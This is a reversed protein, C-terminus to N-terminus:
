QRDLSMCRCCWKLCVTVVSMMNALTTAVAESEIAAMEGVLTALM